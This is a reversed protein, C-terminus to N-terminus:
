SNESIKRRAEAKQKNVRDILALYEPTEYLPKFINYHQVFRFMHHYPNTRELELLKDMAKQYDGLEAYIEAQSWTDGQETEYALVNELIKRGKDSNGNKLYLYGLLHNEPPAILPTVPVVAGEDPIEFLPLAQNFKNTFTYLMGYFFQCTATTEIECVSDLLTKAKDFKGQEINLWIVRAYIPLFDPSLKSHQTLLEEAKDYDEVHQYIAAMEFMIEQLLLGDKNKLLAQKYYIFGKVPDHMINFWIRGLNVYAETLNPNLFIAKQQDRIARDIQQTFEFYQGRLAYADALNPNLDIAKSAFIGISDVYEAAYISLTRWRERKEKCINGLGVYALAYAPEISIAQAYCKEAALLDNKEFFSLYNEYYMRGKKYLDNASIDLTLKSTLINAETSNIINDLDQSGIEEEANFPNPYNIVERPILYTFIIIIFISLNLLKGTFRSTRYLMRDQVGYEHRINVVKNQKKDINWAFYIVVPFGILLLVLTSLYIWSPILLLRSPIDIIQLLLWSTLLYAFGAHFIQRSNLEHWFGTQRDTKLTKRVAAVGSDNVQQSPENQFKISEIKRVEGPTTGYYEHFCKNFYTASGFGVQYAIDSASFKGEKLLLLARNLRIERIFQSISQGTLSHLKRHIQFRSLSVESALMEVGFQENNLNEDVIKELKSLFYQDM